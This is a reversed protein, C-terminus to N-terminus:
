CQGAPATVIGAPWSSTPTAPTPSATSSSAAPASTGSTGPASTSSSSTAGSSPKSPTSTPTASPSPTASSPLPTDTALAKWVPAARAPVLVVNAGDGADAIPITMFTLSGSGLDRLSAAFGALDTIGGLDTTMADAVSGVFNYLTGVNALLSMNLVKAAVARFLAQQRQIRMLDSGDGLGVGTRARAYSTATAGDLHNFGAPLNLNNAEAARVACPLIIDVGGIADVIKAFGAFDVAVFGDIRVNSMAEVARITCAVGSALTGKDMSGYAFASNFKQKTAGAMMVKSGDPYVCQPITILTDRPISVVDVRTRDASIHAIFTTDSRQGANQDNSITSNDGARSDSGIVLINMARGAFPDGANRVHSLSSNGAPREAGLMSDVNVQHLRGSLKLFLVAGTVGAVLLVALAIIIAVKAGRHGGGGRRVAPAEEDSPDDFWVVDEGTFGDASVDAASPVPAWSVPPPEVAPPTPVPDPDPVDLARRARRPAAISVDTTTPPMADASEPSRGRFSPYVGLPVSGSADAVTPEDPYTLARRPPLGQPNRGAQAEDM